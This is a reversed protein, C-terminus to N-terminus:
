TAATACCRGSRKRSASATAPMPWSARGNWTRSTGPWRAPPPQHGSGHRPPNAALARPLRFTTTMLGHIGSFHSPVRISGGLDNGLGLPSGRAAILAAEGGTSGGPTRGLDWPNNTRGYVPNDCEHWIMIQPLNTKALIIGGARRLRAVLTGDAPLLEGKLQDLGICSPTGALHFCEKITIPVGHLPPLPQGAARRADAQAAEKRAQDYLPIAVAHVQPEIAAIRALYRETVETSSFEGRAIRRALEAASL